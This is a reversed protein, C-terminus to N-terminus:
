KRPINLGGPIGKGALPTPVGSPFLGTPTPVAGTLAGGSRAPGGPVLGTPLAGTPVPGTPASAATFTPEIQEKGIVEAARPLGPIGTPLPLHPINLHAGTPLPISSPTISLSFSLSAPLSSPLVVPVASCNHAVLAALFLLATRSM